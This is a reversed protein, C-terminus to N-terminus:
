WVLGLRVKKRVCAKIKEQDQDQDQLPKDLLIINCSPVEYDQEPM